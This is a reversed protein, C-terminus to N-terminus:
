EEYSTWFCGVGHGCTISKLDRLSNEEDYGISGMNNAVSQTMYVDYGDCSVKPWTTEIGRENFYLTRWLVAFANQFEVPSVSINNIKM